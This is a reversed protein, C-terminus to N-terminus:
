SCVSRNVGTMRGEARRALRRNNLIAGPSKTQGLQSVRRKDSSLRDLNRWQMATRPHDKFWAEHHM